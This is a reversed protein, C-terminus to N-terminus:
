NKTLANEHTKKSVWPNGMVTLIFLKIGATLVYDFISPLIVIYSNIFKVLLM